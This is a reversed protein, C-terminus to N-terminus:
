RPIGDKLRNKQNSKREKHHKEQCLSDAENPGIMRAAIQQSHDKSAGGRSM